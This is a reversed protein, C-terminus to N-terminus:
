VNERQNLEAIVAEHAEQWEPRDKTLDDTQQSDEDDWHATDHCALLANRYALLRKTELTKIQEASLVNTTKMQRRGM